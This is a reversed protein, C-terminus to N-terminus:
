ERRMVAAGQVQTNSGVIFQTPLWSQQAFNISVTVDPV